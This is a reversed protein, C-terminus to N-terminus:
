AQNKNNFQELQDLLSTMEQYTLILEGIVSQVYEEHEIATSFMEWLSAKYSKATDIRFLKAIVDNVNITTLENSSAKGTNKKATNNKM